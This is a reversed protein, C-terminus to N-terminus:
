KNEAEAVRMLVPEGTYPCTGWWSWATGDTDVVASSAFRRFAMGAHNAGCRACSRIDLARTEVDPNPAGGVVAMVAAEWAQKIKDTLDDYAPMPLGQYNKFDTVQGYAAYAIRVLKESDPQQM